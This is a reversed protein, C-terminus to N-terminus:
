SMGSQSFNWIMFPIFLGLILCYWFLTHHLGRMKGQITKKVLEENLRGQRDVKEKLANRQQRLDDLEFENTNNLYNEM